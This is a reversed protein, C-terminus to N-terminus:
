NEAILRGAERFRIENKKENPDFNLKTITIRFEYQDYFTFHFRHELFHQTM